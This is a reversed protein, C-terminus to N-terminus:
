FDQEGPIYDAMGLVLDDPCKVFGVWQDKWMNYAVEEFEPSAALIWGDDRVFIIHPVLHGIAQIGDKAIVEDVMTNLRARSIAEGEVNIVVRTDGNRAKIISSVSQGIYESM